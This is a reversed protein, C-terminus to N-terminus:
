AHGRLDCEIRDKEKAAETTQWQMNDPADPGGRKRPIVHDIVFGPGTTDGTAPCPNRRQFERRAATSRQTRDMSAHESTDSRKESRVHTARSHSSRPSSASQIPGAILTTAMALTLIRIM